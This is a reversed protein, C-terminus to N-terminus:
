SKALQPLFFFFELLKDDATGCILMSRSFSGYIGVTQLLHLVLAFSAAWLHRSDSNCQVGLTPMSKASLRGEQSHLAITYGVHTFNNTYYRAWLSRWLLFRVSATLKEPLSHTRCITGFYVFSVLSANEDLMSQFPHASMCFPPIKGTQVKLECSNFLLKGPSIHSMFISWVNEHPWVSTVWVTNYQVSHSVYIM